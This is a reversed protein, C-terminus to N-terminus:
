INRSIIEDYLDDLNLHENGLRWGKEIREPTRAPAAEPSL